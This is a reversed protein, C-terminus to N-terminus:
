IVDKSFFKADVAEFGYKYYLAHAAQRFNKSWLVVSKCNNEKAIKFCEDLIKMAFRNRRYEPKVCIHNLIAYTGMSEYLTPIINIKAHAVIENECIGVIYVQNKDDKYTNFINLAYELKTEEEFCANCLNVIGEVDELTAKKIIIDM